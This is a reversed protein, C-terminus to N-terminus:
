KSEKLDHFLWADAKDWDVMCHTFGYNDQDEYAMGKEVMIDFLYGLDHIDTEKYM